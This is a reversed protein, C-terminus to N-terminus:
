IDINEEQVIIRLIKNELENIISQVNFVRNKFLIRMKCTINPKYHIIFKYCASTIVQNAYM